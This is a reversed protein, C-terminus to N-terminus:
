SIAYGSVALIIIPLALKLLNNKIKFFLLFTIYLLVAALAMFGAKSQLLFIELILFLSPIILLFRTKNNEELITKILYAFAFLNYMSLYSPHIYQSLNSSSFNWTENRNMHWINEIETNYVSTSLLYINAIITVTSFTIFIYKSNKIIYENRISFLLPFVLLSLKVEIDFWAVAKQESYIVSVLHILFFAIGVFFVKKNTLEFAKNVIGHAISFIAFLVILIPSLSRFTPISAVILLLLYFSIKPLLDKM